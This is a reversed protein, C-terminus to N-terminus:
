KLDGYKKVIKKAIKDTKLGLKAAIENYTEGSRKMDIIKVALEKYYSITRGPARGRKNGKDGNQSVDVRNVINTEDSKELLETQENEQGAVEKNMLEVIKPAIKEKLNKLFWYERNDLDQTWIRFLIKKTVCDRISLVGDWDFLEVRDWLNDTM